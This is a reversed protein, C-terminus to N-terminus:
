AFCITFHLALGNKASREVWIQGGHMHVIHQAISLDYRSEGDSNKQAPETQSSSVYLHTFGHASLNWAQNHISVRVMNEAVYSSVTVLSGKPTSEIVHSLLHSTMLTLKERDGLLIPVAIALSLAIPHHPAIFRMRKVVGAIITNLNVWELCIDSQSSEIRELDLMDNIMHLLRRADTHIDMAFEKLTDLGLEQDRIIESCKRIGTLITRFENNITAMFNTKMTSTCLLEENSAQLSCLMGEYARLERDRQIVLALMRSLSRMLAVEADPLPLLVRGYDLFLIGILDDQYLMPVIMRYMAHESAPIHARDPVIAEGRCLRQFQSIDQFLMDVPVDESWYQAYAPVDGACGLPTFLKHEQKFEALMVFHCGLCKRICESCQAMLSSEEGDKEYENLRTLSDGAVVVAQQQVLALSLAELSELAHRARQVDSIYSCSEQAALQGRGEEVEEQEAKDVSLRSGNTHATHQRDKGDRSM